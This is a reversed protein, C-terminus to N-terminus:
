TVWLVKPPVCGTPYMAKFIGEDLNTDKKIKRQKTIPQVKVKNAPDKPISGFAPQVLLDQAKNVYDERDMGVMAVGKDM